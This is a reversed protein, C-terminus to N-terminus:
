QHAEDQNLRSQWGNAWVKLGATLSFWPLALFVTCAVGLLTVDFFDAVREALTLAEPDTTAYIAGVIGSVITPAMLVLIIDPLFTAFARRVPTDGWTRIYRWYTICQWAALSWGVSGMLGVLFPSLVHRDLDWGPWTALWVTWVALFLVVSLLVCGVYHLVVDRPEQRVHELALLAVWHLVSFLVTGSVGFVSWLGYAAGLAYCLPVALAMFRGLWHGVMGLLGASSMAFSVAM